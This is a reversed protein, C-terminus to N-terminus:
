RLWVCVRGTASLFLPLTILTDCCVLGCSHLLNGCLDCIPCFCVQWSKVQGTKNEAWHLFATLALLPAAPMHGPVAHWKSKKEAKQETGDCVDCVCRAVGKGSPCCSQSNHGNKQAPCLSILTLPEGSLGSSYASNASQACTFPSQAVCSHRPTWQRTPQRASM